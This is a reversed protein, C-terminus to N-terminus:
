CFPLDLPQPESLVTKPPDHSQCNENGHWLLITSSGLLERSSSPVVRCPEAKPRSFAERTTSASSSTFRFIDKSRDGHNIATSLVITPELARFIGCMVTRPYKVSRGPLVTEKTLPWAEKAAVHKLNKETSQLLM